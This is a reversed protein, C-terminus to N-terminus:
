PFFLQSLMVMIIMQNSWPVSAESVPLEDTTLLLTLLAERYGCVCMFLSLVITVTLFCWDPNTVWPQHPFSVSDAEAQWSPSHGHFFLQSLLVMIMKQNLWRSSLSYAVTRHKELGVQRPSVFHSKAWPRTVWPQSPLLKTLKQSCSPSGGHFFLQSLLIM